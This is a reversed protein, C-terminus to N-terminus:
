LQCLSGEIYLRNHKREGTQLKPHVLLVKLTKWPKMAVPVNYKMVRAIAESVKEVYPIVILPRKELVEKKKNRKKTGKSEIQRRGDSWSPYGCARLAEELHADEPTKDQSDTVLNQSRELLTRVVSM